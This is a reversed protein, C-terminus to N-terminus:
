SLFIPVCRQINGRCIPCKDLLETCRRCSSVHGCPLIVVDRSREICVVCSNDNQETQNFDDYLRSYERADLYKVIYRKYFWYSLCAGSVLLLSCTIIKLVYIFSCQSDILDEVSDRTLVYQAVSITPPAIKLKNNRELTVLGIATLKTKNLLFEESKEIGKVCEGTVFNILKDTVATQSPEYHHFETTLELHEAKLPHEVAVKINKGSELSFPVTHMHSFITKFGDSWTKSKPFWKSQLERTSLRQMVGQSNKNLSGTIFNGDPVVNGTVAVYPVTGGKSKVHNLLRSDVEFKEVNQLITQLKSARNYFIWTLGGAIGFALGYCGCITASETM